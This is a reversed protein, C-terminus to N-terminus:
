RDTSGFTVSEIHNPCKHVEKWVIADSSKFIRGKWRTGVFVGSGFVCTLPANENATRTWKEGDPSVFTVGAGVAVFRGDAFVVANLHEGEKGRQPESWTIGDRSSVRLSHLGVGVFVGNGFAVDVLTDVAKVDPVDKWDLGDTSYSRRGRDGVGVFTGNGFALRRLVWKGSIRAATTWTAGDTSVAVVPKADGVQAADGSMALFKGGGFFVSKYVTTKPKQAVKWTVADPSSAMLQDGYGYGGVAAFAGNGYAVSRYGEGEKGLQQNKWESGDASSIRLGGGGVAVFMKM